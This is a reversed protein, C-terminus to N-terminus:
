RVILVPCTALHVVKHAVSGLLLSPIDSHGRSGLVIVDANSDRAAEVIRAAVHGHYAAIRSGSAKIGLEQLSKATDEAINRDEETLDVDLGAARGALLERVHFVLVEGNTMKALEVTKQVAKSSHQSNDIALLIKDFM